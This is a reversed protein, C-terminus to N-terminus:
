QTIEKQTVVVVVFGFSDKLFEVKYPTVHVLGTGQEVWGVRAVRTVREGPAAAEDLWRSLGARHRAFRVSDEAAGCGFLRAGRPLDGEGGDLGGKTAYKVLYGVPRRAASIGSWGSKWQGSEDPKPLKVGPPVWFLVHYHPRGRKTLEIVWQYRCPVKRRRLWTRVTNVYRAVDGSRWPAGDRYTLLVMIGRSRFGPIDRTADAASIVVRRMRRIRRGRNLGRLAQRVSLHPLTHTTVQGALGAPVTGVNM